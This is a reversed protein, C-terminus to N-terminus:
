HKAFRGYLAIGAVAVGCIGGVTKLTELASDRNYSEREYHNKMGYHSRDYNVKDNLGIREIERKLEAFKLEDAKTKREHEAKLEENEKKLQLTKVEYNEKAQLITHQMNLEKEKIEQAFLASKDAGQEAEEQTKYVFEATDVEEIKYFKDVKLTFNEQVSVVYLGNILQKKSKFKPIKITDGFQNLYRDSLVDENDIIYTFKTGPLIETKFQSLDVDSNNNPNEKYAFMTDRTLLLNKNLIVINTFSSENGPVIVDSNVAFATVIKISNCRFDNSLYDTENWCKEAFDIVRNFEDYKHNINKKFKTSEKLTSLYNKSNNYIDSVINPNNLRHITLFVVKGKYKNRLVENDLPTLMHPINYKNYIVLNMDTFNLVLDTGGVNIDNATVDLKKNKKIAQNLKKNTSREDYTDINLCVNNDHIFKIESTTKFEMEELIPVYDNFDNGKYIVGNESMFGCVIDPVANLFSLSM